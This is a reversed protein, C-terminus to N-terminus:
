YCAIYNSNLGPIRKGVTKVTGNVEKACQGFQDGGDLYYIHTTWSKPQGNNYYRDLGDMLAIADAYTILQDLVIMGIQPGDPTERRVLLRGVTTSNAMMHVKGTLDTRKISPLFFVTNGNRKHFNYVADFNGALEQKHTFTIKFGDEVIIIGYNKFEGTGCEIGQALCRGETVGTSASTMGDPADALSGLRQHMIKMDVNRQFLEPHTQNTVLQMGSVPWFEGINQGRYNINYVMKGNKFFEDTKTLESTQSFSSLSFFLTIIFSIFKQTKM